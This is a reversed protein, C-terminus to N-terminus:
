DLDESSDAKKKDGGKGKKDEMKKKAEDKKAKLKAFQEPTLISQAKTEFQDNAAKVAAKKVVQDKGARAARVQTVRETVAAKMKATQDDSLGLNAKMQQSREQAIEEVSKTANKGKQAAGKGKGKGGQAMMNSAGALGIALSLVVIVKKM